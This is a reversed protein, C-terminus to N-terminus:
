YLQRSVELVVEDSEVSVNWPVESIDMMHRTLAIHVWGKDVEFRAEGLLIDVSNDKSSLVADGEREFLLASISPIDIVKTEGQARYRGTGGSWNLSGNLAIIDRRHSMRLELNDFQLDGEVAIEYTQFVSNILSQSVSAEGVLGVSSFGCELEANLRLEENKVSIAYTLRGQVLAIPRLKWNLRGLSKGEVSVEGSGNWVTGQTKLLHIGYREVHLAFARSPIMVILVILFAVGSILLYWRLKM